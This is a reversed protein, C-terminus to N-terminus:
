DSIMTVRVDQLAGDNNNGGDLTYCELIASYVDEAEIELTETYRMIKIVKYLPM